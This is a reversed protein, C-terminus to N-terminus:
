EKHVIPANDTPSYDIPLVKWEYKNNNDDKVLIVDLPASHEHLIDLSKLLKNTVKFSLAM